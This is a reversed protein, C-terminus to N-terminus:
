QPEGWISHSLLAAGAGTIFGVPIQFDASLLGSISSGLSLGCFILLRSMM